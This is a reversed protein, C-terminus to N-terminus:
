CSTLILLPGVSVQHKIRVLWPWNVLEVLRSISSDIARHCRAVNNVYSVAEPTRVTFISQAPKFLCGRCVSQRLEAPRAVKVFDWCNYKGATFLSRALDAGTASTSREAVFAFPSSKINSALEVARVSCRWVGIQSQSFSFLSIWLVHSEHPAEASDLRPSALSFWLSPDALAAEEQWDSLWKPQLAPLRLFLSSPPPLFGRIFSADSWRCNSRQSTHHVRHRHSTTIASRQRM